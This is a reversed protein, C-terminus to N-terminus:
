KLDGEAALAWGQVADFRPEVLRSVFAEGGSAANAPASEFALM